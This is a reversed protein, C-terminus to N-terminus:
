QVEAVSIESAMEVVTTVQRGHEDDTNNVDHEENNGAPTIADKRTTHELGWHSCGIGIGM